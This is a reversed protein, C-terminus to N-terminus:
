SLLLWFFVKIKIEESGTAPRTACMASKGVGRLGEENIHPLRSRYKWAGQPRGPGRLGGLGEWARGPGDPHV